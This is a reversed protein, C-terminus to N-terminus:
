EYVFVCATDQYIRGPVVFQTNSPRRTEQAEQRNRKDGNREQQIPVPLRQPTLTLHRSM